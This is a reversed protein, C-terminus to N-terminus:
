KVYYSTAVSGITKDAGLSDQWTNVTLFKGTNTDLIVPNLTYVTMTILSEVGGITQGSEPTFTVDYNAVGGNSIAPVTFAVVSASTSSPTYWNPTNERTGSNMTIKSSAVQTKNSFEVIVLMDGTSKLPTGTLRVTDIIQNASATENKSATALTNSDVDKASITPASYPTLDFKLDNGDCRVAIKSETNLYNSATALVDLSKGSSPSSPINGVYSGDYISYNASLTPTTGSVLTDTALVNISPAINCGSAGPVNNEGPKISQSLGFYVAGILFAIGFLAIFIQWGVAMRAKGKNNIM